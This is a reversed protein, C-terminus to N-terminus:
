SEVISLSSLIRVKNINYQKIFLLLQRVVIISFGHVGGEKRWGQVILRLIVLGEQVEALGGSGIKRIKFCLLRLRFAKCNLHCIVLVM